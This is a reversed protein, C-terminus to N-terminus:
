EEEDQEDNEPVEVENEIMDLAMQQEQVVPNLRELPMASSAQLMEMNQDMSDVESEEDQDSDNNM